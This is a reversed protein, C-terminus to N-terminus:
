EGGTLAASGAEAIMGDQQPTVGSVGIAGILQGDHYLPLGGEFAAIDLTLLALRGGAIAEELLRTSRKFRVATGAKEIAIDISAIQTGDMREFALLHGGADVVAVAVNWENARAHELAADLVARAGDSTLHPRSEVQGHVPGPAFTMALLLALVSGFPNRRMIWHM